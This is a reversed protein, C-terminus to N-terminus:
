RKLWMENLRNKLFAYDHTKLELNKLREEVKDLRDLIRSIIMKDVQM